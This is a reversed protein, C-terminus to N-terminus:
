RRMADSLQMAVRDLPGDVIVYNKEDDSWIAVKGDNREGVCFVRDPNVYIFDDGVKFRVFM